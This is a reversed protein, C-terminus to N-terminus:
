WSARILLPKLWLNSNSCFVSLLVLFFFLLLVTVQNLGGVGHIHLAVYSLNGAGVLCQMGVGFDVGYARWCSSLWVWNCTCEWCPASFKGACRQTSFSSRSAWCGIAQLQTSPGAIPGAYNLNFDPLVSVYVPSVLLGKLVRCLSCRLSLLFGALVSFVLSQECM